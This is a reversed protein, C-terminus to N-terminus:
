SMLLPDGCARLFMEYIELNEIPVASHNALKHIASRYSDIVNSENLELLIKCWTDANLYLPVEQQFDSYLNHINRKQYVIPSAFAVSYGARWLCASVVYGRLIDTVRDSVGMPLFLLPFAERMWLTAQSNTPCYTGEDLILRREQAFYVSRGDIMRYIADVDPDEDALFQVIAWPKTDTGTQAACTPDNVHELPFGRPWCHTAGFLQYVNLWCNESRFREGTSRNTTAVLDNVIWESGKYPINDDDTELIAIAGHKIAYVYGLTKRIYTNEPFARALDGFEDYQEEISLYTVGDYTWDAPTKRDGVVVIQWDQWRRFEFIALNPRNITTIIIFKGSTHM